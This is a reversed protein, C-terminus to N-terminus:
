NEVLITVQCPDPFNGTQDVVILRLTWAGNPLSTTDISGLVGNTVPSNGGTIYAYNETGAPAYEIKYYQFQEHTASGVVNIFGSVTENNGPRLFLARNDPCAPAQAIPRPPAPTPEVAPTEEPADGPTLTLDPTPSAQVATPLPTPTVPLPTNTPTPVFPAAPQPSRAELVIPDVAEVLTNSVFYTGGMILLLLLATYFIRFLDRTAKERELSFVAQRREARVQAIRYLQYLAVLGCLAYLWPAYTAVYQILFGM